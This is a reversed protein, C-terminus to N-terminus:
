PKKVFPVHEWLHYANGHKTYQEKEWLKYKKQWAKLVEPNDFHRKKWWEDTDFEAPLLDISEIKGYEMKLCQEWEDDSTEPLKIGCYPCYEISTCDYRDLRFAAFTRTNRYYVFRAFGRMVERLTTNAQFFCYDKHGTCVSSLIVWEEQIEEESPEEQVIPCENIIVEDRSKM